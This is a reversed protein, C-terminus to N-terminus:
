GKRGRWAWASILSGAVLPMLMAAIYAGALAQANPIHLLDQLFAMTRALPSWGGSLAGASAYLPLLGLRRPFDGILAALACAECGWALLTLVLVQPASRRATQPVGHLFTRLHVTTVLARYAWRNKSRAFALMLRSLENPLIWLLILSLLLFLGIAVTVRHDLAGGVGLGVLAALLVVADSLREIWVVALTREWGVGVLALASIRNLEGIKFPFALGSLSGIFHAFAVKRIRIPTGRLLVVLRLVRLIHGMGYSGAVLLLSGWFPPRVSLVLCCLALLPVCALWGWMLATHLRWPPRVLPRRPLPDPAPATRPM